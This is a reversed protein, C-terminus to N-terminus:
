YEGQHLLKKTKSWDLHSPPLASWQVSTWALFGQVDSSSGFRHLVCGSDLFQDGGDERMRLLGNFQRRDQCGVGVLHPVGEDHLPSGAAHDAM